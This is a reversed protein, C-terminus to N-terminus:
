ATLKQQHMVSSTSRNVLFGITMVIGSVIAAIVAPGILSIWDM